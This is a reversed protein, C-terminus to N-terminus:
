TYSFHQLTTEENANKKEAPDIVQSSWTGPERGCQLTALTNGESTM